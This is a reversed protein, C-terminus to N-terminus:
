LDVHSEKLDDYGQRKSCRKAICGVILTIIFLGIVVFSVIWFILGVNHLYYIKKMEQVAKMDFICNPWINDTLPDVIMTPTTIDSRCYCDYTIHLAYDDLQAIASVVTSKGSTPSIITLYGNPLKWVAVYQIGLTMVSATVPTCASIEYNEVYVSYATVQTTLPGLIVLLLGFLFLGISLGLTVTAFKRCTEKM